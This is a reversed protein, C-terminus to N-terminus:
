LREMKKFEELKNELSEISPVPVGKSSLLKVLNILEPMAYMFAYVAAILIQQDEQSMEIKDM